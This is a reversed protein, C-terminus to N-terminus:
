FTPEETNLDAYLFQNDKKALARIGEVNDTKSQESNDKSYFPAIFNRVRFKERLNSENSTDIYLYGNRTAQTAHEYTKM